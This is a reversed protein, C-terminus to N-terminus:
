GTDRPALNLKPYRTRMTCMIREGRKHCQECTEFLRKVVLVQGDLSITKYSALLLSDIQVRVDDLMGYFSVLEHILDDGLYHLQSINANYIQTQRADSIHPTFHPDTLKQKLLFYEPADDIATKLDIVNVNIEAFLSRILISRVRRRELYSSIWEVLRSVTWVGVAAWLVPATLITNMWETEQIANGTSALVVTM